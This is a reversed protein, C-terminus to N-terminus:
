RHHELKSAAPHHRIRQHLMKPLPPARDLILLIRFATKTVTKHTRHFSLFRRQKSPLALLKSSKAWQSFNKTADQISFKGWKRPIDIPWTKYSHPETAKIYITQKESPHTPAGPVKKSGRTENPHNSKTQMNTYEEQVSPRKIFTFMWFFFFFVFM